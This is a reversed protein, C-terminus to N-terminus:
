DECSSHRPRPVGYPNNPDTVMVTMPPTAQYAAEPFSGVQAMELGPPMQGRRHQVCQAIACIRRTFGTMIEGYENQYCHWYRIKRGGTSENCEEKIRNCNECQWAPRLPWSTHAWADGWDCDEPAPYIQVNMVGAGVFWHWEFEENCASEDWNDECEVDNPTSGCHFTVKCQKYRYGTKPAPCKESKTYTMPEHVPTCAGQWVGPKWDGENVDCYYERTKEGNKGEEACCDYKESEPQTGGCQVPDDTEEPLDAACATDPAEYDPMRRLEDCTPYDKNLQSCGEGECCIRGDVYSPMRLEYKLQKSQANMGAALAVYNYSDTSTRPLVDTLAALNTAYPKDLACRREQEMRVARMVEEAETTRRTVLVKNFKPLAVTALIGIVVVVVLLETLTFAKKKNIQFSM